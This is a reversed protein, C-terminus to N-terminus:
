FCALPSDYGALGTAIYAKEELTLKALFDKANTVAKKWEQSSTYALIETKENANALSNVVRNLDFPFSYRRLHVQL